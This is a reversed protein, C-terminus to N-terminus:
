SKKSSCCIFNTKTTTVMSIKNMHSNMHGRLCFLSHAWRFEQCANQIEWTSMKNQIEASKAKKCQLKKKVKSEQFFNLRLSTIAKLDCFVQNKAELNQIKKESKLRRLCCTEVNKNMHPYSKTWVIYLFDPLLISNHPNSLGVLLIEPCDM